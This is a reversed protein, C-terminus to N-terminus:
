YNINLLRNSEVAFNTSTSELHHDLRNKFQNISKSDVVYSPLANWHPITRNLYFSERHKWTTLQPRAMNQSNRRLGSSPSTQTTFNSRKYGKHWNINNYFNVFKYFQILDGRKRRVELTTLNLMSLRSHYDLDKLSPVLKTARRQIKEIQKITKKKSPSWVQSAYELHPRVFATYLTKFSPMTWYKFTRKLQGLIRNAKLTIQSIHQDFNMDSSLNVGLDKESTTSNLIHRSTMDNNLMTIQPCNNLIKKKSVEMLKCKDPHFLMQWDTAWLTLADVDEQFSILDNDNKIIGILKSDDAFLKLLHKVVRPMDNIFIVFLLPALCSGQPVGSTVKEWNSIADGLIVRQFRNNLFNEVWVVIRSDFRYSKLKALLSRHCVKDFAKAFDLFVILLRYGSDITDTIIDVTELLNTLCSKGTVFGHQEPTILNNITLHDIMENRIIKEM